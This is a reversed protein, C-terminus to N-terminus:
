NGPAIYRKVTLNARVRLPQGDEGKETPHAIWSQFGGNGDSPFNRMGSVKFNTARHEAVWDLEADYSRGATAAVADALEQANTIKGTTGCAKLYRLMWSTGPENKFPAASVRQYRIEFGESTPGVIRSDVRAVLAGAGSVSFAESPITEPAQLTYRGAPPLRFPSKTTETYMDLDMTDIPALNGLEAISVTSM